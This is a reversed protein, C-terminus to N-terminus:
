IRSYYSAKCNFTCTHKDVRLDEVTVIRSTVVRLNPHGAQLPQGRIPRRVHGGSSTDDDVPNLDPCNTVRLVRLSQGKEDCYEYCKNM